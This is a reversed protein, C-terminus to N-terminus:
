CKKSYNEKKIAFELNQLSLIDNLKPNSFNDGCINTNKLKRLIKPYTQGSM